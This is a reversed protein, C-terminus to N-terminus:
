PKIFKFETRRNLAHEKESCLEGNICRNLIKTEGMGQATLRKREIGNSVLYELVEYSRKNSLELNSADDSRSDTHSYIELKLKEDKKLANFIVDLKKMAEATLKYQNNLYYINESMSISKDPSKAFAEIKINADEEVIPALKILDSSLIKYTFGNKTKLIKSVITGNQNALYIEKENKIKNNNGVVINASEESIKRFEFDGYEDTKTTKLTDGNIGTLYVLSHALPINNKAGYLIKAFLDEKLNKIGTQMKKYTNEKTPNLVNQSKLSAPEIQPNAMGTTLASCTLDDFYFADRTHSNPHFLVVMKDVNAASALSGSPSQFYSFTILEWANQVSTTAVSESYIGAPYSNDSKTGLQLQITTGVPASSYLKM